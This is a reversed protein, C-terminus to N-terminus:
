RSERTCAHGRARDDSGEAKSPFCATRSAARAVVGTSWSRESCRRGPGYPRRRCVRRKREPVQREHVMQHAMPWQESSSTATHLNPRCPEQVAHAEGLEQQRGDPRLLGGANEAIIVKTRELYRQLYARCSLGTRARRERARQNTSSTHAIGNPHCRTSAQASASESRGDNPRRELIM